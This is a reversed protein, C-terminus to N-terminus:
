ANSWAGSWSLDSWANFIKLLQHNAGSTSTVNKAELVAYGRGIILGKPTSVGLQSPRDPKITLNVFSGHSLAEAIVDFVMTRTDPNKYCVLQKLHYREPIGATLDTLCDAVSGEKLSEYDKYLRFEFVRFRSFM